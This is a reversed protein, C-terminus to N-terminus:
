SQPPLNPRDTMWITALVAAATVAATSAVIQIVLLGFRGGGDQGSVTAAASTAGAALMAATAPAIRETPLDPPTRQRAVPSSGPLPTRDRATM